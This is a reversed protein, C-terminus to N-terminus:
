DTIKPCHHEGSGVTYVEASITLPTDVWSPTYVTGRYKFFQIKPLNSILYGQLSPLDTLDVITIQGTLAM